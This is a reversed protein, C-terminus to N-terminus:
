TNYVMYLLMNELKSHHNIQALQYYIVRVLSFIFSHFLPQSFVFIWLKFLSCLMEDSKDYFVVFAFLMDNNYFTNM